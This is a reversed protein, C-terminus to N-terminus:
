GHHTDDEIEDRNRVLGLYGVSPKVNTEELMRYHRGSAILKSVASEPDNMDGFVIAGAPCSQQCAPKIDGDAIARGQKKAEIRAEEIRQVCLSCKEMVGRGRVTIDPNLSMNALKDDHAYEFWNFRRVKYPCNNACYRTGVCRNYAQQNLGEEGHVTALVPCVTECPASDCHQCMVPQHLVDTEGHNDSYYRDIRLWHMIRKRRVEDRGVVPVNNEIQCSVVCASCGTCSTLDIAMGWHHGEYKHDDPWLDGLDEHHVAHGREPLKGDRQYAAITTERVMPRRRIMGPLALAEPIEINHYDQTTALTHKRGTRTVSVHAGSLRLQGARYTLLPSANTGVLGNDGLTPKKELWEPGVDAFRASEGYGYGLAIAVVRDHQGPQVLAPLEITTAKSDPESRTVRVVDGTEVGLSAATKESLSAYNDWVVKTIPDPMELLWPNAAGRGDLMAVKPYLVLALQGDRVKEAVPVPTVVGVQFAGVPVAQQSVKAFGDHIAKNWSVREGWTEQVLARDSKPVGTWQSLSELASRTDFLPRMVPQQFGILGDGFSVDGWTELYHHDPCIFTAHSSTESIRDALSVVLGVKGIATAFAAGNPLDYVPNVGDMILADVTGAELENLLTQIADDGADGQSAPHAIDLTAGYNGLTHNIFNCVVQTNVDQSGCVVLSKGRAHWLRAALDEVLSADIGNTGVDGALFAVGSKKAVASAVQTLVAGLQSPAVPVRCDAKGGTVSLRSEFQAHYSFTGNTADARRGSAWGATFTVPSLWTGLFDADFGVIVEAKDFLYRPLVSQGHTREHAQHIASSSLTEYTVHKADTFSGVFREIVRRMTPSSTPRTLVRVTAGSARLADLQRMIEGDVVDWTARKGQQMPHQLRKSDYLGLISAQGVACLGGRSVPHEANGELKIARGDRNKVLLGCGAPCARCTSAYHVAHGPVIAEPAVLYPIAKQIPARSCGTFAMGGLAFGAAALFDRRRFEMGRSAPVEPFEDGAIPLPIVGDSRQPLSKWYTKSSSEGM